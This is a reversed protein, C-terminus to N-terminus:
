FVRKINLLTLKKNDLLIFKNQYDSWNIKVSKADIEDGFKIKILENLANITYLADGRKHIIVANPFSEKLNLRQGDKLTIKYTIIIKNDDILNEYGFVRNKQINFETDLHNIFWELKEKYIFSALLITKDM